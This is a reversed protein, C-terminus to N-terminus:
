VIGTRLRMRLHDDLLVNQFSREFPANLGPSKYLDLVGVLNRGLSLLRGLDLLSSGSGLRGRLLLYTYIILRRTFTFRKGHEDM